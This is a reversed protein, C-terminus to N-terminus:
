EQKETSVSPAVRRKSGKMVGFGRAAETSM